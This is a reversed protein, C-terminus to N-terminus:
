SWTKLPFFLGRRSFIWGPGRALPFGAGHDHALSMQMLQGVADGALIAVVPIADLRAIRLPEGSARGTAANGAHLLPRRHSRDAGVGAAGNAHGRREATQGAIAGGETEASGFRPLAARM